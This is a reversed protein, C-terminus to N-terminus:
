NKSDYGKVTRLCDEYARREEPSGPHWSVAYNHSEEYEQILKQCDLVKQCDAKKQNSSCGLLIVPLVLASILTVLKSHKGM